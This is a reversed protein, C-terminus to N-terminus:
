RDLTRVAEKSPESDSLETREKRDSLSGPIASVGPCTAEMEEVSGVGSLMVPNASAKLGGASGAFPM